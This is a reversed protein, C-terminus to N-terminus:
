LLSGQSPTETRVGRAVRAPRTESAEPQAAKEPWRYLTERVSGDRNWSRSYAVMGKKPFRYGTM